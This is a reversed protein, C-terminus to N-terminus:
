IVSYDSFILSYADFCQIWAAEFLSQLLKSIENFSLDLLPSYIYRDSHKGSIKHNIDGLQGGESDVWSTVSVFDAVHSPIECKFIADNGIM